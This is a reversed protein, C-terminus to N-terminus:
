QLRNMASAVRACALDNRATKEYGTAVRRFREVLNRDKYRHGDTERQVTRNKQTPTVM